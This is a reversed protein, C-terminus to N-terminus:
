LIDTRDTTDSRQEMIKERSRKWIMKGWKARGSIKQSETEISGHFIRIHPVFLESHTTTIPFSYTFLISSLSLLVYEHTGYKEPGYHVIEHCGIKEFMKRPCTYITYTERFNRIKEERIIKYLRPPFPTTIITRPIPVPLSVIRTCTLPARYLTSTSGTYM